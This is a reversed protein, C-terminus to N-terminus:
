FDVEKKVVLGFTRNMEANFRQRVISPTPQSSRFTKTAADYGHDVDAFLDRKLHLAMLMRAPNEPENLMDMRADGWQDFSRWGIRSGYREFVKQRYDKLMQHYESNSVWRGAPSPLLPSIAVFWEWFEDLKPKLEAKRKKDVRRVLKKRANKTYDDAPHWEFGKHRVFTLSTDRGDVSGEGGAGRISYKQKSARPKSVNLPPAMLFKDDKHKGYQPVVHHQGPSTRSVMLDWPAYKKLMKWYGTQYSNFPARLKVTEEGDPARQWVIPALAIKEAKTFGSLSFLSFVDDGDTYGSWMVYTDDDIKEIREWKITRKGLPRVDQERSHNKSIVPKVSNYHKEVQTFTDFM